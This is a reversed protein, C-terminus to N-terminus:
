KESYVSLRKKGIFIFILSATVPFIVLVLYMNAYGVMDAVAGAITAGVAIGADLGFLFTSTAVGRRESPAAAVAMTQLTGMGTGMGLGAFVGAVCFTTINTSFSILVLTIVVGLASLIGPLYFGTKDIMKGVVPRSIITVIAYVTFYLYINDVGRAQGHLTIFTMISAFGCNLLFMVGAPLLAGKDYFDTLQLKKNREIKTIEKSRQFTSLIFSLITCGAAIIIMPWIGSNQLLAVSLAPALATAIASTLAFYGMGEAFRNKPIVDAVITSTATSSLGWGIGHLLRLTLIIGLVPFVAYAVIVAAMLGVSVLLISKRGYRDLMIGTFPRIFLAAGTAFSIVLGAVFDTAGLQTVYVPMGVTTMNFGFFIFLNILAIMIFDRTWINTKNM